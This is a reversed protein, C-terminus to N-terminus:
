TPKTAASQPALSTTSVSTGGMVASKSDLQERIKWDSFGFSTPLLVLLLPLSPVTNPCTPPFTLTAVRRHPSISKLYTVVHGTGEDDSGIGGARSSVAEGEDMDEVRDGEEDEEDEDEVDEEEKEEKEEEVEAEEEEEGDVALV